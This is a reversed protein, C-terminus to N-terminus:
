FNATIDFFIYRGLADYFQPLTNGNGFVAPLNKSGIIPPNQDFINNIGVRATYNQNVHWSAELDFYNVAPLHEDGPFILAPNALLPNSSSADVSVPGIYRWQGSFGLGYWPTAWSVRFKNRWTPTPATMPTGTGQCVTGYLGVCNFTGLGPATTVNYDVTYTGEFDFVLDGVHGAGVDELSLRYNSAVDFGSTEYTATNLNTDQVFGNTGLFLSGTGPARHVLNCYFPNGTSACQDIITQAGLGNIADQINIHFYDVSLSFRPIQHPTLVIGASYTDATEPKLNPNGGVLGNYQNAPNAAINGYQGATVGTRECQTLSDGPTPGACPDNNFDLGIHQPNFLEVIDPARVARNYSARILLDDTVAWTPGISYTSTSGFTSYDSYRYSANLTLSKALEADQIIPIRAEGYIEWLSYSGHDPETPGGQGALDGSSFEEDVNLDLTERRYDIGVSVGIPDKAWPSKGGISGLNGTVDSEVILETDLGEKFGPTNIYGIAAQSVGGGQFVNWPVCGSDLGSTPAGVCNNLAFNAKALSVDNLYEEAYVSAGYQFFADYHWDENIDGKFGTVIRYDDHRFTDQRPGGEVNRRAIALTATGAPGPTTTGPGCLTNMEAASLLPDTCAIQFTQGFVGSPAIQATTHDDSFMFDLYPQFHSNVDYHSFVGATITSDSRQYFNYPAFNFEDTSTNFGRFSSGPGTGTVTDLKYNYNQDFIFFAGSASTLSGACSFSAAKESLSCASFDRSVQTVPSLQRYTVYATANGKGDPSNAGIVLSLNTGAGDNVNGPPLAFNRASVLGQIGTDSNDHNYFGFNGDLQVGEFNKKMIFNVVGAVADAGYISSASATDIEVRDVLQTPIFNLDPVPTTPDGPQLRRGDILVLTRNSGLNRLNVTAIGTAGNSIGGGQEAAVQPLNNLLDEVRTVGETKIEVNSVATVPAVSTLNPQPIRSGTVVVETVATGTSTADTSATITQVPHAPSSLSVDAGATAIPATDATADAAHAAAVGVALMAVGSIMSSAMLRTRMSIKNL